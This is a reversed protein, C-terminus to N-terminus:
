PTLCVSHGDVTTCTQGAGPCEGADGSPCPCAGGDLDQPCDASNAACSGVPTGSACSFCTTHEATGGANCGSCDTGCYGNSNAIGAHFPCFLSGANCGACDRPVCQDGCCAGGCNQDNCASSADSADVAPGDDGTDANADAPRNGDSHNADPVALADADVSADSPAVNEGSVGLKCAGLGMGLGLVVVSTGFSAALFLVRM